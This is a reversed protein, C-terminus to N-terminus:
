CEVWTPPNARRKEELDFRLKECRELLEQGHKRREENWGMIPNTGVAEMGTWGLSRSGYKIPASAPPLADLSVLSIHSASIGGQLPYIPHNPSGLLRAMHFSLLKMLSLFWGLVVIQTAVVGPHITIHRVGSQDHNALSYSLLDGHYKSLEYPALSSTLQWDSPNFERHHTSISTQWLIRAPRSSSPVRSFSDALTKVLLYHGFVNSQWTWGLGDESRVGVLQKQYDPYTVAYILDTALKWFAAPWNIGNWPGAAANLIAHTVYPYKQQVEDCFRFVSDVSALDLIIIDIELNKRFLHGHGDYEEGASQKQLDEDLLEFLRTRATEARYRSRCALILTFATCPTFPSSATSPSVAPQPLADSPASRSLQLLLRHCIGFGIGRNAGTVIAVVRSPTSGTPAM